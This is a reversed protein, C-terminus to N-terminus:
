RCRRLWVGRVLVTVHLRLMSSKNIDLMTYCESWRVNYRTKGAQEGIRRELMHKEAAAKWSM